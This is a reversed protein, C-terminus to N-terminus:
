TSHVPQGAVQLRLRYVSSVATVYLTRWDDDGWALNAPGGLGGGGFVSKEEGVGICGLLKGEPDFVWIGEARNSTVYLNGLSDMKMGDPARTAGQSGAVQADLYAAFDAPFGENKLECFIRGNSVSGDAAVDFVHVRQERTNDVFLKSGDDSVVLGNPASVETTVLSLAGDRASVRYVAPVPPPDPTQQGRLAFYPDTFYLDGNPACVIDNPGNLPRGNYSEALTELSGDPNTRVLKRADGVCTILRGQLDYTNGNSNQSHPRFVQAGTAQTWRLIAGGEPNAFQLDVFYLAKERQNWLPGETFTFGTAVQEPKADLDILDALRADLAVIAM